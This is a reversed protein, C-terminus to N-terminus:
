FISALSYRQLVARENVFEAQYTPDFIPKKNPSAFGVTAQDSKNKYM